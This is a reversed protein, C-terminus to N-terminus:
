KIDAEYMKGSPSKISVKSPRKKVLEEISKGLDDRVGKISKGMDDQIDNMRKSLETAAKDSADKVTKISKEITKNQKDWRNDEKEQPEDYKKKREEKSDDLKAEELDVQTKADFVKFEAEARLKKDAIREQSAIRMEELELQTVANINAVQIASQGDMQKKALEVQSEKEQKQADVQAEFQTKQMEAQAKIEEPNPAPQPPPANRPDTIFEEVHKYGANEVIKKALSYLNNDQVMHSKGALLLKEQALGINMLHQLQQDKNGTGLGVNVSVDWGTNWNRPDVPVFKGHMRIMMERMSYKNLMYLIGKMLAKVGTEAFIRACLEIKQAQQNEAMVAGRATKNIADADMGSSLQNVGTRNMRQQDLYELMPYAHGATFNTELDRVAGPQYERVIGGVRSTLLDDLNAHIMGGQTALVAKRPHNSLYLNNLIQRWLTTKIKQLDMVEEATSLGIFRHPMINPTLAAFPVIDAEENSLIKNGAVFVRRLEALGDENFDVKIYVERLWVPRSPGKREDEPFQEESYLRRALYEESIEAYDDADSGISDVIEPDFGMELLNTITKRTRHECFECDDLLISNHRPSILFEEPACVDVCVKGRSRTVEVEVDHLMPPQMGQAALIQLEDASVAPKADHALVEVNDDAVLMALQEDTLGQYSEKKKSEDEEYYFKVVGNKSILADKFWEYLVLFGNNQKWFVYNVGDSAQDAAEVDESGVPEFEVIRGSTAFVRILAPLMWEITDRVSSDVVQSEGEVENGIPFQLYYQLAEAREGALESSHYGLAAEEESKITSLLDREEV